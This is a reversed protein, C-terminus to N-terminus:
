CISIQFKVLDKTLKIRLQQTYGKCDKFIVMCWPFLSLKKSYFIFLTHLPEFNLNTLSFTMLFMILQKTISSSRQIM